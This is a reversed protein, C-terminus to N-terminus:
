PRSLTEFLKARAGAYDPKGAKLVENLRLSPIPGDYGFKSGPYFIMSAGAYRGGANTYPDAPTSDTDWDGWDTANWLCVGDARYRYGSWGWRVAAELPEHVMPTSGYFYLIKGAANLKLVEPLNPYYHPGGINWLDVFPNLTGTVTRSTEKQNKCDAVNECHFHGIDLRFAVKVPDGKPFSKKLITGLYRLADLDKVRTPEDLNW